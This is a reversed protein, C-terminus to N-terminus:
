RKGRRKSVPKGIVESLIIAQRATEANLPIGLISRTPRTQVSTTSLAPVNKRVGKGTTASGAKVSDRREKRPPSGSTRKSRNKNEM